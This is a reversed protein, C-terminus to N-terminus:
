NQRAPCKLQLNNQGKASSEIGAAYKPPWKCGDAEPQLIRIPNTSSKEATRKIERRLSGGFMASGERGTAIPTPAPRPNRDPRVPVPPPIKRVGSKSNQRHACM